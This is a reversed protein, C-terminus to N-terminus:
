FQRQFRLGLFSPDLGLTLDGGFVNSLTTDMGRGGESPAFTIERNGAPIVANESAMRIMANRLGAPINGAIDKMFRKIVKGSDGGKYEGINQQAAAITAEDLADAIISVLPNQRLLGDNRGPYTEFDDQMGRGVAMELSVPKRQPTPYLMDAYKRIIEPM